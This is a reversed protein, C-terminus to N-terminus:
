SCERAQTGLIDWMVKKLDDRLWHKLKTCIPREWSLESTFLIYLSLTVRWGNAAYLKQNAAKEFHIHLTYQIHIDSSIYYTWPAEFPQQWPTTPERGKAKKLCCLFLAWFSRFCSCRFSFNSDMNRPRKKPPTLFDYFPVKLSEKKPPM